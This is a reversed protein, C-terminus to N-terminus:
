KNEEIGWKPNARIHGKVTPQAYCTWDSDINSIPRHQAYCTWDSDINSIPRHQAYGTLDSDINTYLVALQAYCTWYSDINTNIYLDAPCLM